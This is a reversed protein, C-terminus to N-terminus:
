HEAPSVLFACGLPRADWRRSSEMLPVQGDRTPPHPRTTADAGWTRLHRPWSTRLKAFLLPGIFDEVTSNQAVAKRALREYTDDKSNLTAM